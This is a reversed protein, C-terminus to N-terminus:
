PTSHPPRPRISGWAGASAVLDVLSSARPQRLGLDVRGLRMLPVGQGLLCGMSETIFAAVFWVQDNNQISGPRWGKTKNAAVM